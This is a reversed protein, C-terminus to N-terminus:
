ESKRGKKKFIEPHWKGKIATQLMAKPNKVNNREIQINVSRLANKIVDAEHLKLLGKATAKSFGYEILSEILM